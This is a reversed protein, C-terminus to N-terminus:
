KNLILLLALGWFIMEPIDKKIYARIFMAIDIVGLIIAIVILFITM